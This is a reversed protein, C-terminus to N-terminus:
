AGSGFFARAQAISLTFAGSESAGSTARNSCSTAIKRSISPAKDQLFFPFSKATAVSEPSNIEASPIRKPPLRSAEASEKSSRLARMDIRVASYESAQLSRSASSWFRSPNFEINSFAVFSKSPARRSYSNASRSCDAESFLNRKRSRSNCSFSFFISSSQESCVVSM